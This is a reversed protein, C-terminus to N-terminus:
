APNQISVAPRTTIFLEVDDHAYIVARGLKRASPGYGRRRWARLCHITVGFREALESETLFNDAIWM